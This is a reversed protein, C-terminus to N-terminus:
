AQGPDTKATKIFDLIRLAIDEYEPVSLPKQYYQRAGLRTSAQKDQPRTSSTLVIVPINHLSIDAKMESMVEYGDKLPMNLDLVIVDPLQPSTHLYQLLQRGNNLCTIQGNFAQRHLAETIFGQDDPDDDAILISVEDTTQTM